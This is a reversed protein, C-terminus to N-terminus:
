VVMVMVIIVIMVIVLREGALGSIMVGSWGDAQQVEDAEVKGRM